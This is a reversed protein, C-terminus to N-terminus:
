DIEHERRIINISKILKLTTKDLLRKRIKVEMSASPLGPLCIRVRSNEKKIGM